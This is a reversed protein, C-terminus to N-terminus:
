AFFDDLTKSPKELFSKYAKKWAIEMSYKTLGKWPGQKLVTPVVKVFRPFRRQLEVSSENNLDISRTTEVGGAANTVNPRVRFRTSIKNQYGNTLLQLLVYYDEAYKVSKWDVIEKPFTAGDYFHTITSRFNIHEDQPLPPNWTVDLSTYTFGEDFWKDLLDFMEDFQEDTLKENYLRDEPKEGPRFTYVFDRVDDDLVGYRIPGANNAIWERTAPLGYDLHSKGEPAKGQVPCIVCNYKEHMRDYDEQDVVFVCKDQWKKPMCNYTLQNTRRYTPIFLKEIM